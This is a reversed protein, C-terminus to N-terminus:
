WLSGFEYDYKEPRFQEGGSGHAVTMEGFVVRDNNLKYLDVRIFDFEQGLQEAVDIMENLMNPREITPALPFKLEFELPNWNRDYFRRKHDEYRDV